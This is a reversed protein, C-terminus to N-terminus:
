NVHARLKKLTARFEPSFDPPPIKLTECELVKTMRRNNAATRSRKVKKSSKLRLLPESTKKRLNELKERIWAYNPTQYYTLTQTYSFIEFIEAPLGQMFQNINVSSRRGIMCELNKKENIWPLEKKVLYIMLLFLSEIDDRRSASIGSLINKSCFILNGKFATDERMPAHHKTASDIFTKCLGYDILFFKDHKASLLINDPKLDRHIYGLLHLTELATLIQLGLQLIEHLGFSENLIVNSLSKDILEMIIYFNKDHEGSWYLRPFHERGSVNTFVKSEILFLSSYTMEIFKIAVPHGLKTDKGKFVTAFSGKGLEEEQKFRNNIM